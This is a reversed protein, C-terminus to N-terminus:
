ITSSQKNAVEICCIIHFYKSAVCKTFLVSYFYSTLQIKFDRVPESKRFFEDLVADMSKPGDCADNLIDIQLNYETFNIIGEQEITNRAVLAGAKNITKIRVNGKELPLLVLVSMKEPEVTSAKIRISNLVILILVFNGIMRMRFGYVVFM